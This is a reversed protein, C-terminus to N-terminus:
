RCVNSQRKMDAFTRLHKLDINRIKGVIERVRGSTLVITEGTATEVRYVTGLQQFYRSDIIRYNIKALSEGAGAITLNHM